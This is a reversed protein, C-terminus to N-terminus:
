NEEGFKYILKQKIEKLFKKEKLQMLLERQGMVRLDKYTYWAGGRQIIGYQIAYTMLVKANNLRPPSFYFENIGSVLPISFKSKEIKIKIEIGVIDIIKNEKKDTKTDKKEEAKEEKTKKTKTLKAGSRFRVIYASHHKLAHGGPITDPSGFMVGVKERLHAILIVTTSNYSRPDLLNAPQLGSTIKQVLKSNRRAQLAMQDKDTKKNLAERPVGSTVSDFIVLGFKGSRVAVDALDIAKELDDPRAIMFYKLDNGLKKIWSKDVDGEACIYLVPIKNSTFVSAVLLSQVTKGSSEAGYFLSISGKPLGGETLIDLLLNKTAVKEVALIDEASAISGVGFEKEMISLTKKFDKEQEKSMAELKIKENLSMDDEIKKEKKCDKSDYGETVKDYKPAKINENPIDEEKKKKKVM